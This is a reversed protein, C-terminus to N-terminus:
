ADDVMEFSEGLDQESDSGCMSWSAGDSRSTSDDSFYVDLDELYSAGRADVEGRREVVVRTDVQDLREPFLLSSSVHFVRPEALAPLAPQLDAGNNM